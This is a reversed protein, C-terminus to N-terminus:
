PQSSTKSGAILATSPGCQPAQDPGLLLAILQGFILKQCSADQQEKGPVLRGHIQDAIAHQGQEAM